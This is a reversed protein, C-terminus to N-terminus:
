YLSLFASQANCYDITFVSHNFTICYFCLPIFTISILRASSKVMVVVVVDLAEPLVPPTSSAIGNISM